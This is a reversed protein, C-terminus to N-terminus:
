RRMLKACMIPWLLDSRTRGQPRRRMLDQVMGAGHGWFRTHIGWLWSTRRMPILLERFGQLQEFYWRSQGLGEHAWCDEFVSYCHRAEVMMSLRAPQLVLM